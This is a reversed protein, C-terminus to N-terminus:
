LAINATRDSGMCPWCRQRQRLTAYGGALPAYVVGLDVPGCERHADDHDALIVKIRASRHPHGGSSSIAAAEAAVALGARGLHSRM